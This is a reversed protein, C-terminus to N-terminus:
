DSGDSQSDSESEGSASMPKKKIKDSTKPEDDAM